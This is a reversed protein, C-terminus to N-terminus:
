IRLVPLAGADLLEVLALAALGGVAYAVPPRLLSRGYIGALAALSAVLAITAAGPIAIRDVALMVVNGVVIVLALYNTRNTM